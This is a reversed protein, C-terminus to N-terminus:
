RDDLFDDAAHNLLFNITANRSSLGLKDQVREVDDLLDNPMRQTFQARDAGGDGGGGGAASAESESEPGPDSENNEQQEAEDLISDRPM